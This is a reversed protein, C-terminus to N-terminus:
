IEKSKPSAMYISFINVLSATIVVKCQPNWNRDCTKWIDDISQFRLNLGIVTSFWYWIQVAFPCEFFIHFTSEQCCM